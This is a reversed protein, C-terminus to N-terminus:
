FNIKLFSEYRTKLDNLDNKVTIGAEGAELVMAAHRQIAELQEDTRAFTLLTDLAEMLRILVAPSEQGYQRIQNFAADMIGAFNLPHIEVRPTDEHDCRYKEPFHARTLHSVTATLKDICTIATFPDNIGPSLARAAVEVMQHIAFEVDQLPTRQGGIIMAGRLHELLDEETQKRAHVKAMPQEKVVFNGPRKLLTILLDHKQALVLLSDYDIMQLYGDEHAKVVDMVIMANLMEQVRGALQQSDVEMDDDPFLKDISKNLNNHSDSLVNDAQIGISIHHIFIILLFINAVAVAIAFLISFNPIFDLDNDSKVTRLVLLCYIFTAIYAGLVTQNLRDHMFNRMLRPGFQSSALTLAVLTISFVTGAVSLMAGAITSLISRAAEAGGSFLYGMAGSPKYETTSDLFILGIASGIAALVLLLPVFWFSTQIREWLYILKAKM